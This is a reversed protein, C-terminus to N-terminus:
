ETPENDEAQDSAAQDAEEEVAPLVLLLFAAGGYDNSIMEDVKGLYDDPALQKHHYLKGDDHVRGLYEDPGLKARYVKGSQSDVRGIYNDPGMRAEYIKGTRIDVRGIFKDPGFRSAYVKGEADIRGLYDDPALHKHLYVKNM